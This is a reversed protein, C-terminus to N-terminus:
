NYKSRRIVIFLVCLLKLYAKFLFSCIIDDFPDELLAPSPPIWCCFWLDAEKGPDGRIGGDGALEDDEVLEPLPILTFILLVVEVSELCEVFLELPLM